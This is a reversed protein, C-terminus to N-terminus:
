GRDTQFPQWDSLRRASTIGVLFITKLTLERLPCTVRMPEFPGKNFIKLVLPQDWMSVRHIEPPNSLAVGRLFKKVYPHSSLNRDRPYGWISPIALVQRRLTTTSLGRELGVQLFELLKRVRPRSPNVGKEACWNAIVRWTSNYVRNTSGRRDSLLTSLVAESYGLSSMEVELDDPTFLRTTSPLSSGPDPHRTQRTAPNAPRQVDGQSGLVMPTQAQAPCDPGGRGGGELDECDGAAPSTNTPLCLIPWTPWHQQRGGAKLKSVKRQLLLSSCSSQPADCLDAKMRGFQRELDLFVEQHLAWETQDIQQWSLRLQAAVNEVWGQYM